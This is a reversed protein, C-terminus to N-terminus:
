SARPKDQVPKAGPRFRRAALYRGLPVDNVQIHFRTWEPVRTVIWHRVLPTLGFVQLERSLQAFDQMFLDHAAKHKGREPYGAAAMFSEEAAFHSVLTDGLADLAARLPELGADVSEACAEIRQLLDGHQGDIEEFGVSMEAAIRPSM